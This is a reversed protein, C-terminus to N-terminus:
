KKHTLHRLVERNFVEAYAISRGAEPNICGSPLLRRPVDRVIQLGSGSVGPTYIAFTGAECIYLEGSAIAAQADRIAERQVERQSYSYPSRCGLLLTLLLLAVLSPSYRM